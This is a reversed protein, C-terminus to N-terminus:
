TLPVIYYTWCEHFYTWCEFYVLDFEESICISASAIFVFSIIRGLDAEM